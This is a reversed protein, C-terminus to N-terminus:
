VGGLNYTFVNDSMFHLISRVFGDDAPKFNRTQIAVLLANSKKELPSNMDSPGTSWCSETNTRGKMGVTTM